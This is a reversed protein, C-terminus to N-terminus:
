TGPSLDLIEIDATLLGNVTGGAIAVRGDALLTSTHGTRPATLQGSATFSGAEPDFLVVADTPIGSAIGGAIVTRGDPLAVSAAGVRDEPSAGISAWTGIAQPPEAHLLMGAGAVLAAIM